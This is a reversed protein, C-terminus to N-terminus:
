VALDVLGNCQPHYATTILHNTQLAKVLEETFGATLNSGRDTIIISPAGHQLIIRHIFFDVFEKTNKTKVPQTIVWKTFYDVAVIVYRNGLQFLSFPGILGIGVREFPQNSRIPTLYGAPRDQARKKTQCDVCSLVYRIIQKRMGPWYFRKEIKDLTKTVGLHGATVDDHCALLFQDILSPPICLRLYLQGNKIKRHYLVGEKLEFNNIQKHNRSNSRSIPHKQDLHSM